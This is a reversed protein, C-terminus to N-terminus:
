QRRISEITVTQEPVDNFGNKTGTKVARIKDVVDMGAIVEGFVAYGNGDPKPYDLNANDVVNIFFQSTASNPDNTRAMAIAGRKNKLGNQAELPIAPSVSKQVMDPTFGGGQIMFNAIVRHFITGDYFKQDVYKLFNEVSKPAKAPDLKIKVEGLSTKMVVVPQADAAKAEGAAAAAGAAPKAAADAAKGAEKKADAPKADTPIPKRPADAGTENGKPLPRIEEARVSTALPLALAVALAPLISTRVRHLM